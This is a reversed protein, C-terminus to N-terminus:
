EKALRLIMPLQYGKEKQSKVIPRTVIAERGEIDDAPVALEFSIDRVLTFILAKMEAVAFRYGICGRPGALFTGLHSYVSPIEASREPMSSWRDPNFEKADDGWIETSRNLLLIPIYIIDGKKVRIEHRKAGKVDTYPMSLPIVSDKGAVRTTGAVVARTRLAERLVADLYPLAMLDEVGLENENSASTFEARLKTQVEPHRAIEYLIWALSSATTEHGAILFTSIQDLIEEDSMKQSEPIDSAMNAKILLSLLDRSKVSSKEIIGSTGVEALIADKKQQILERGIQRMTLNDAKMKKFQPPDDMISQLIPFVVRLVNVFSFHQDPDIVSGNTFLSALESAEGDESLASFKYDFGALGIIDLSVRSFWSMVDTEHMGDGEAIKRLWIDRLEHSKDLFVSTLDRVHAASFAPNMARRQRKHVDGEAFLLGKGFIEGVAARFAEPKPFDYAHSLIYSLARTDATFLHPTGLAAWYRIVHGYKQMWEEEMKQEAQDHLIERANGWIISPSSPGPLHRLGSTLPKSLARVIRFLPQALSLGFLTAIAVTWPISKLFQYVSSM